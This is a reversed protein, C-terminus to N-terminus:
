KAGPPVPTGPPLRVVLPEGPECTPTQASTLRYIQTSTDSAVRVAAPDTAMWYQEPATATFWKETGAVLYGYHGADLLRRFDECTAAPRFGGDPGRYGVYDVTNTLDAGYLPYQAALGVVAIRAHHVGRAWSGLATARYRTALYHDVERYGAGTLVLVVVIGAIALARRSLRHAVVVFVAILAALLVTVALGQGRHSSPLGDIHGHVPILCAVLVAGYTVGLVELLRRKDFPVTTALLILGILVSFDAYRFNGALNFYGFYPEGASGPSALYVAFNVLAAIAFLRQVPTVPRVLGLLVGTIAMALVLPWLPGMADFLASPVAHWFSGHTFVALIPKQRSVVPFVHTPLGPLNIETVPNHTRVLDRLYWFGGSLTLPVLWALLSRVRQRRASLAVVGITLAAVAGLVNLKTGVALGAATGALVLEGIGRGNALVAVATLLLALVAIDVTANAPASVGVLTTGAIAAGAVVTVAQARWPVGIYWAAALAWILWGLNLILSLADNGFVVMGISHLLESGYPYYTWVPDLWAFHFRSVWGTQAFTAAFPLHYQLSDAQSIGAGVTMLIRTVWSVFVLLVSGAAVVLTLATPRVPRPPSTSSTIRRTFRKRISWVTIGVVVTSVALPVRRFQGFSGLVESIIEALAVGLTVEALRARGGNWAPLLIRRIGWAAVALPLVVLAFLFVDVLFSLFSL